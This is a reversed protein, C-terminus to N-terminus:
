RRDPTGHTDLRSQQNPNDKTLDRVAKLIQDSQGLATNYPELYREEGTILFGRQGTEADKMTSLLEDLNELVLHTHEVWTSTEILSATSRYSVWGIVVLAALALAFGGGIKTGITWKM